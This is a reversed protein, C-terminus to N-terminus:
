PRRQSVVHQCLRLGEVEGDTADGNSVRSLLRHQHTVTIQDIALGDNAARCISVAVLRQSIQVLRFHAHHHVRSPQVLFKCVLVEGM